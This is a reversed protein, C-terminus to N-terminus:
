KKRLARAAKQEVVPTAIKSHEASHFLGFHELALGMSAAKELKQIAEKETISRQTINVKTGAQWALLHNAILEAGSVDHFKGGVSEAVAKITTTAARGNSDYHWINGNQVRLWSEQSGLRYGIYSPESQALRHQLINELEVSGDVGIAEQKKNIKM